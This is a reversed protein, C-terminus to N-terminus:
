YRKVDGYGSDRLVRKVISYVRGEDGGNIYINVPGKGGGAGAAGKLAQDIAGGPMAGYFDDMSNLPTISGRNGDGRYIFDNPTAEVTIDSGYKQGLQAAFERAQVNTLGDPGGVRSKLVDIVDSEMGAQLARQLDEIEMGSAGALKALFQADFVKKVEKVAEVTDEQAKLQDASERSSQVRDLEAQAEITGIQEATLAELPAIDVEFGMAKAQEPSLKGSQIDSRVLAEAQSRHMYNDASIGGYAAGQQASVTIRGEQAGIGLTGQRAFSQSQVWEEPTMGFKEIFADSAAGTRAEAATAGGSMRRRVDQETQITSRAAGMKGEIAAIESQIRAREEPTSAETLAGKKQVLEASLGELAKQAASEAALSARREDLGQTRGTVTAMLTILHELGNWINELLSAIVNSMTQGISRTEMLQDQASREMLSYQTAATDELTKSQSLAGSTLAEEFTMGQLDGAAQMAEFEGRLGRDLRRLVEYQEGSIGTMEEFAAASLGRLESLPKGLVANAQSLQLALEGGKGLAGLASAQNSLGGEMGVALDRLGELQKAADEDQQRTAHLTARFQKESLGALKSLDLGGEAGAIGALAGGEQMLGGFRGSFQEGTAKAEAGIIRGAAGGSLMVTKLREQMGMNRFTKELGIQEKALDEGLIKVMDNFLGVSDSLRFNYLAMGSSATNIAAFFDKVAMGSKAAEGYIMGFAGQIETLNSGFDRHWRGMLEATESSSIGLGQSALIATRTVDTYAQMDNTAGQAVSRFERVTLGAENLAGIYGSVEEKSMRFDYATDVTVRRLMKLRFNLAGYEAGMAKIAQTNEGLIDVTSVSEMIAKNLEKTQGYAAGLVGVLAALPAAVAAITAAAGALKAATAGGGAVSAAAGARRELGGALMGSLKQTLAKADLNDLSFADELLSSMDEGLEKGKEKRHRDLREEHSQRLRMVREADEEARKLLEKQFAREQAMARQAADREAKLRRQQTVDQEKDLKRQISAVETASKMHKRASEEYAKTLEAGAERLGAKMLKALPQAYESKVAKAGAKIGSATGGEVAGHVLKDLERQAEKGRSFTGWVLNVMVDLPIAGAM